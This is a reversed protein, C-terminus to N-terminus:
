EEDPEWPSDYFRVAGRERAFQRASYASDFIPSDIDPRDKFAPKQTLEVEFFSAYWGGDDPGEILEAYLNAM